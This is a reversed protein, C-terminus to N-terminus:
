RRARVCARGTRAPQRRCATERRSRRVRDRSGALSRRTSSRLAKRRTPPVESTLTSRLTIAAVLRLRPLPWRRGFLVAFIEVVPELHHGDHHRRQALSPFVNGRKTSANMASKLRRLSPFILPMAGCAMRQSVSSGQGPCSRSSFFATSLAAMNADVFWRGPPIRTWRGKAGSRPRATGLGLPSAAPAASVM